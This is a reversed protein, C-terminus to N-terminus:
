ISGDAQPGPFWIAFPTLSQTDTGDALNHVLCKFGLQMGRREIDDAPPSSPATDGTASCAIVLQWRLDRAFAANLKESIQDPEVNRIVLCSDALANTRPYFLIVIRGALFYYGIMTLGWYGPCIINLSQQQNEGSAGLAVPLDPSFSDKPDLTAPWDYLIDSIAPPRFTGDRNSLISVLGGVSEVSNDFVVRRMISYLDSSPSGEHENWTYVGSVARGQEASKRAQAQHERFAEYADKDGIWQTPSGSPQRKGNTIKM